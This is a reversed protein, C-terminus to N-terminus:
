DVALAEQLNDSLREYIPKIFYEENFIKTKINQLKLMNITHQTQRDRLIWLISGDPYISFHYTSTLICVRTADLFNLMAINIILHSCGNQMITTKIRNIIEHVDNEYTYFDLFTHKKGKESLHM